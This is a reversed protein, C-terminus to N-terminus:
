EDRAYAVGTLSVVGREPLTNCAIARWRSEHSPARSPLRPREHSRRTSRTRALSSVGTFIASRRDITQVLLCGGLVIQIPKVSADKLAPTRLSRTM